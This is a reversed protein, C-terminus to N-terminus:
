PCCRTTARAARRRPTSTTASRRSPRDSALVLLLSHPRPRPPHHCTLPSRRAQPSQDYLRLIWCETSKCFADHAEVAAFGSHHVGVDLGAKDSERVLRYLPGSYNQYLARVVSHAAVCATGAAAFLDCPGLPRPPLAHSSWGDSANSCSAADLRGIFCGPAAKMHRSWSDGSGMPGSSNTKLYLKLLTTNSPHLETSKYTYGICAASASCAAEAASITANQPWGPLDGGAWLTGPQAWFGQACAKGAECWQWTECEDGATCCAQMCEESTSVVPHKSLFPCHTNGLSRSFTGADCTSRTPAAAPAWAFTTLLSPPLM